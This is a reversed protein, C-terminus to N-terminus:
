APAKRAFVLSRVLAGRLQEVDMALAALYCFAAAPELITRRFLLTAGRRLARRRQIGPMAGREVAHARVMMRMFETLGPSERSPWQKRWARLWGTTGDGAALLARLTALDPDDRAAADGLLADRQLWGPAMAGRALHDLWPLDFWYRWWMVAAQWRPPMWAAVQRVEDRWAARLAAEVEHVDHAPAIGRILRALATSRITDLLMAPERVNAIRAWAIDDPLMGFRAGLRAQAFEIAGESRLKM